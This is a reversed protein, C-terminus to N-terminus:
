IKVPSGRRASALCADLVIQTKLASEPWEGNLKVSRIQNAFDRIMSTAQALDKAFKGPYKTQVEKQNLQFVPKPDGQSHVFDDVRLQGKDGSVHIWNQYQAIFSCYFNASTKDDFVMEGSFDVPVPALNKRARRQTLIRGHVERPLKWNMAWLSFRINYWGLDGLCGAPELASNIRVNQGYVNEDMHFSFNSTIRKIQGTSKGDDLVKRIRSMRPNHVFMVGDMFQVDNKKCASIMEQVDAANLGCPKECLVHKGAAAARLVWEKRLGTPLPIYVADIEKSALLEDYSGMAAPPTEFPAEAQLEKIYQRARGLDRSAVATVIANGSAHISKWNKRSINATSLFGFRLKKM